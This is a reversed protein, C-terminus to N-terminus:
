PMQPPQIPPCTGTELIHNITELTNIVGDSYPTEKTATLRSLLRQITKAYQNALLIRDLLEDRTLEHFLM